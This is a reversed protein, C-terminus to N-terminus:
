PAPPAVRARRGVSVQRERLFPGPCFSGSAQAFGSKM